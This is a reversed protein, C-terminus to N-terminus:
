KLKGFEASPTPPPTDIGRLELPSTSDVQIAGPTVYRSGRAGPESQRSILGQKILKLLVANAFGRRGEAKWHENIQATTPNGRAKVFQLICQEGTQRFKGRHPQLSTSGDRCSRAVPPVQVDGSQVARSVRALIQDIADIAQLHRCRDAELRRITEVVDNRASPM